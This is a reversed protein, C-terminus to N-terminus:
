LQAFAVADDLSRFCALPKKGAAYKIVEFIPRQENGRFRVLAKRTGGETIHALVPRPDFAPSTLYDTTLM